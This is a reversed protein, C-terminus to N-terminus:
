SNGSNDANTLITTGFTINTSRFWGTLYANGNMDTTVSYSQDYGIGGASKAWLIDGNPAYKAIFIDEGGSNTLTNAGLTITPSNFKGSVYINGLLDTAISNGRNDGTGNISNAWLCDQAKVLTNASLVLAVLITIVKKM